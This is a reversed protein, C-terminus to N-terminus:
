FDCGLFLPHHTCTSQIIKHTWIKTRIEKGNVSFMEGFNVAISFLKIFM